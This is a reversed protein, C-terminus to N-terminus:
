ARSAFTALWLDMYITLIRRVHDEVFADKLGLYIEVNRSGKKFLKWGQPLDRLRWEQYLKREPDTLGESYVIEVRDSQRVALVGGKAESLRFVESFRFYNLANPDNASKSDPQPRSAPVTVESLETTTPWVEQVAVELASLIRQLNELTLRHYGLELGSYSSEPINCM